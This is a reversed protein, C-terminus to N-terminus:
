GGEELFRSLCGQVSDSFAYIVVLNIHKNDKYALEWYSSRQGNPTLATRHSALNEHETNCNGPPTSTAVPHQYLVPFQKFKGSKGQLYLSIAPGPTTILTQQQSSNMCHHCLASGALTQPSSQSLTPHCLPCAPSTSTLGSLDSLNGGAPKRIRPPDRSASLEM